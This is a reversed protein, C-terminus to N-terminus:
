ENQRHIVAVRQSLEHVADLGFWGGGLRLPDGGALHDDEPAEDGRQVSVGIRVHGTHQDILPVSGRHRVLGPRGTQSERHRDLFGALVEERELVAADVFMRPEVVDVSEPRIVDLHEYAVIRVEVRDVAPSLLIEVDPTASEPLVRAFAGVSGYAATMPGSRTLYYRLVNAVLRAGRLMTGDGGLTLLADIRSPDNLMEADNVLDHLEQEFVPTISLPPAIAILRALVAPLGDYSLNGIVGLRIM